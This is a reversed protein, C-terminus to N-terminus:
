SVPHNKTTTGCTAVLYIPNGAPAPTTDLKWLVDMVRVKQWRQSPEKYWIVFHLLQSKILGMHNYQIVEVEETEKWM